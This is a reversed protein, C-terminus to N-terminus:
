QQSPSRSAPLWPFDLSAPPTLTTAERALSFDLLGRRTRAKANIAAVSELVAVMEVSVMKPNLIRAFSEYTFNLRYVCARKHPAIQWSPPM